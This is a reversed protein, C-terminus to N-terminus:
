WFLINSYYIAPTLNPINPHFMNNKKVEEKAPM